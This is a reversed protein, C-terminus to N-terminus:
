ARNLIDLNINGYRQFHKFLKEMQDRTHIPIREKTSKSERLKQEITRIQTSEFPTEFVKKVFRAIVGGQLRLFKGVNYGLHKLDEKTLHNSRLNVPTFPPMEHVTWIKANHHLKQLEDADLYPQMMHTIYACLFEIQAMSFKMDEEKLEEHAANCLEHQSLLKMQLESQEKDSKLAKIAVELQDSYYVDGNASIYAEEEWEEIRINGNDEKIRNEKATKTFCGIKDNSEPYARVRYIGLELEKKIHKPQLSVWENYLTDSETVEEVSHGGIYDEFYPYEGRLETREQLSSYEKINHELEVFVVDDIEVPGIKVMQGNIEIYEAEEDDETGIIEGGSYDEPYDDDPYYVNEEIEQQTTPASYDTTDNPEDPVEIAVEEGATTNAIAVRKKRQFVSSLRDFLSEIVSQFGFYLGITLILFVAFLVNGTFEDTGFRTIAAHRGLLAMIGCGTIVASWIFIKDRTPPAFSRLCQPTNRM